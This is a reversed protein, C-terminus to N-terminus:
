SYRDMKKEHGVVSSWTKRTDLWVQGHREPTWGYRDMNKQHGAM